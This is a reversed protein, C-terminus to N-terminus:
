NGWINDWDNRSAGTAEDGFPNSDSGDDSYKGDGVGLPSTAVVMFPSLQLIETQPAIYTMRNKKM